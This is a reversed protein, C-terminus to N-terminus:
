VVDKHYLVHEGKVTACWQKCYMVVQGNEDDLVWNTPRMSQGALELMKVPQITLTRTLPDCTELLTESEELPFHVHLLNIGFRHLKGHKRLVEGVEKLCEEDESALPLVDDIYPIETTSADVTLRMANM